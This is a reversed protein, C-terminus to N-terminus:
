DRLSFESAIAKLADLSDELAVVVSLSCRSSGVLKIQVEAKHLTKFFRAFLGVSSEIGTGVISLLAVTREISCHLNSGDTSHFHRAVDLEDSPIAVDVPCTPGQSVNHVVLRMNVNKRFFSHLVGALAGPSNPIAPFSLLSIERDLCAAIVPKDARGTFPGILTGSQDPNSADAVRIMLQHRAALQVARPHIVKAGLSAMACTEEYNLMEILKPKDPKIANPDATFIGPVDTLILCEQVGLSAALAVASTDSGGRGITTVAEDKTIGQFGPIVVVDHNELYNFLAKSDISLLRANKHHSTTRIRAQFANVSCAKIGISMLRAAMLAASMNEGLSIFADYEREPLREAVEKMKRILEDTVNGQASVVVAVKYGKAVKSRIYEAALILKNRSALSSGGYKLVVLRNEKLVM